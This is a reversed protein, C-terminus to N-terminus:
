SGLARMLVVPIMGLFVLLFGLAALWVHRPPTAPIGLQPGVVGIFFTGGLNTLEHRPM